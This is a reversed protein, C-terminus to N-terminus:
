AEKFKQGQNRRGKSIEPSITEEDANPKERKGKQKKKPKKKIIKKKKQRELKCDKEEKEFNQPLIVLDDSDEGSKREPKMFRKVMEFRRRAERAKEVIITTKVKAAKALDDLM